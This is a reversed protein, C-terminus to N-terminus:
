KLVEFSAVVAEFDKKYLHGGPVETEDRTGLFLYITTDHLLAVTVGSYLGDWLCSVADQDAVVTALTTGEECNTVVRHAVLWDHVDFVGTADFVSVSIAPPGDYAVGRARASELDNYDASRLLNVGFLSGQQKNEEATNEFISYGYPKIRYRFGFSYAANSFQAIQDSAITDLVYKSTPAFEPKAVTPVVVPTVSMFVFYYYALGGFVCVVILGFLLLKTVIYM